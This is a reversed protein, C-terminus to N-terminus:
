EGGFFLWLAFGVLVLLFIVVATLLALWVIIGSM